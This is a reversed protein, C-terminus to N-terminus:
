PRPRRGVTLVALMMLIRRQSHCGKKPAFNDLGIALVRGFNLFNETDPAL